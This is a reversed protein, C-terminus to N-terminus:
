KEWCSVQKPITSTISLWPLTIVFTTEYKQEDLDSEDFCHCCCTASSSAGAALSGRSKLFELLWRNKRRKGQRTQLRVALAVATVAKGERRHANGKAENDLDRVGLAELM